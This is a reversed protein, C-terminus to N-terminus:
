EKIRKLPINYVFNAGEDLTFDQTIASKPLFYVPLSDLDLTVTHQGPNVNTFSYKGNPDTTVQLGNELKILVGEAGKDKMSYKEDGDIDEFVLGSIESRSIIGFDIKAVSHQSLLAEQNFPVTLVYGSPLTNTDLSVFAKHGKIKRFSYYGFIDTTTYTDTGLWITIGAVPPEDKQKLGDSNLDKFVSGEINGVTEWRVGTDWMCRMGLNFSADVRKSVTEKDAWANRLTCSGYMENYDSARYTLEAHGELSDEGSLFGLNSDAAEEDRYYLRFSGYFPTEGLQKNYDLGYETAHPHFRAGGTSEKLLNLEKNMFYYLEDIVKFRLGAFFRDNVYDSAPSSFNQSIQHYYNAFFNMNPLFYLKKNIGLGTSVYRSQSLQGLDNQLSHSFNLSTDEDLQYTSNSNFNENLRHPNDEAPYLRDKFIDLSNQMIFKDNPQYTLNLLGGIQGQAWGSGTLQQFSKDVERLEAMVFLKPLQFHTNWLHAYNQTDHAIEYKTNWKDFKFTASADYTHPPLTEERDNGWGRGVTYQYSQHKTPYFNVNLGNIYSDKIKSLSPSLNGFSGGGERGWLITYALKNHFAPSTLMAGRLGPVSFGLNAFAVGYDFARLSFDKFPGYQGNTLGITYYTLDTSEKVSRVTAKTDLDGYPTQGVLTLGHLWGYNSRNLTNLRRGTAVSDWDISYYIKFSRALEEQQRRLEEYTDGKPKPFIGLLDVTWRGNNDWIHVYTQGVEKGTILLENTGQQTGDVIEPTTILFRQINNGRIILSGGTEIEIPQLIDKLSEDLVLVHPPEVIGTEAMAPTKQTPVPIQSLSAEEPPLSEQPSSEFQALAQKMEESLYSQQSLLKGHPTQGSSVKTPTVIIQPTTVVSPEQLQNEEILKVYELAPAYDPNVLLAKKFEVLADTYRGQNFFKVGLECLYEPMMSYSYCPACVLNLSSVLCLALLVVKVPQALTM